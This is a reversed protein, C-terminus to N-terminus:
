NGSWPDFEPGKCQSHPTEAVPGGPFVRLLHYKFVFKLLSLSCHLCLESCRCICLGQPLHTGLIDWSCWPPIFHPLSYCLHPCLLLSCGTFCPSSLHNQTSFHWWRIHTKISAEMHLGFPSLISSSLGTLLCSLPSIVITHGMAIVILTTLLSQIRRVNQLCCWLNGTEWEGRRLYKIKNWLFFITIDSHFHLMIHKLFPLPVLSSVALMQHIM